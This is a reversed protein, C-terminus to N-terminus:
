SLDILESGEHTQEGNDKLSWGLIGAVVAGSMAVSVPIVVLLIVLFILTGVM